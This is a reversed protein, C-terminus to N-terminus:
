IFVFDWCMNLFSIIWRLSLRWSFCPYQHLDWPGQGLTILKETINRMLLNDLSPSWIWLYLTGCWPIVTCPFLTTHNFIIEWVCLGWFRMNLSLLAWFLWENHVRMSILQTLCHTITGVNLHVNCVPTGTVAPIYSNLYCNLLSFVTTLSKRRCIASHINSIM